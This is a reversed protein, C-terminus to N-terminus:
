VHPKNAYTLMAGDSCFLSPLGQPVWVIHPLHNTIKLVLLHCQLDHEKHGNHHKIKLQFPHGCKDAVPLCAMFETWVLLTTNQWPCM